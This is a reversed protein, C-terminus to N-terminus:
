PSTVYLVSLLLAPCTLGGLTIEKRIQNPATTPNQRSKTLMAMSERVRTPQPAPGAINESTASSSSRKKKASEDEEDVLLLRARNAGRRM